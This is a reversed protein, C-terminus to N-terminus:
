VEKCFITVSVEKHLMFSNNKKVEALYQLIWKKEPREVKPIILGIVTKVKTSDNCVYDGSSLIM